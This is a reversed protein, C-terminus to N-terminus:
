LAATVVAHCRDCLQEHDDHSGVSPSWMWCRDCKAGQAATVEVTPEVVEAVSIELQSVICITAFQDIGVRELLGADEQSLTVHVHADLSHGIRGEKRESELARTVAARLEWIQQWRASLDEDQWEIEAVPFENLFVSEAPAGRPIALWIEEATFSLIPAIVRTLSSLVDYMVTQAARRGSSEKGDCYLRDKVIDFYLSSLDVSCFNNLAHYVAHFEFQEYASGCRQLFEGLRSLAWRDLENMEAPPVRDRAPDFDSLNGLMNRATNRVRRYSDALRRLIEESIRVDDRYDEAAVWLRLIDAGYREIVEQPAVVNGMSKSMKRGEGDLVFGHTLVSRYPARGRTAVATLLASHFWGRHQDSGELYLDAVTEEGHDREVVAAFSIGSDFWVDLIDREREFETAGCDQCALDTPIWEDDDRFWADSGNREFLEAAREALEVSTTSASCTRCRLAIVPVGWARQRSLCWDPRNEIMGHIRERGWSPIWRVEDIEALCGARLDGHDLALFWQDTARFIIPNKCRWCHPYSHELDESALLAGRDGLLRVIDADADFVFRGAFRQVESTFRGDADVPAYPELEYRCGVVYDEDGHGPATHVCGTGAELTVHDGLIVLSDRDIWPHRARLGELQDGRFTAVTEGLSLRQRLGEVLAEALLLSREGQRVLAYVYGPHLAIALNAPLTWPTTTWIAIAPRLAAYEALVGQEGEVDFAVYVSTSAHDAYEVEAEALATRCSACWYVPKRGRYLAGSEIIKALERAEQAEYAFDTTKYPHAWDGIVGLRRFEQRQVEVFRDAYERCHARFSVIDASERGGSGLSKEVELEIPLGHCDWGPRYPTRYGSLHKFKLVIDKLVKNLAHGIHINGNAYPPGDHLLYLEAGAREDLMRQYLDGTEWRELTQPEREPLRARMPFDTRPLNLTSKYNM